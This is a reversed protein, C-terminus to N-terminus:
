AAEKIEEQANERFSSIDLITCSGWLEPRHTAIVTIGGQKVYDSVGKVLHDRGEKDLHNTPEDILWIKRKVLYLLTLLTRRRQGMSLYSVPYHSFRGLGAKELAEQIDAKDSPGGMICSLFQLNEIVSLQPKLPTEQAMWLINHSLFENDTTEGNWKISGTFPDLLGAMIRLLSTKGCGNSGTLALIQGSEIEFSLDEFILRHGRACSLNKGSFVAM